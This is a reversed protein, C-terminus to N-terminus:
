IKLFDIFLKKAILTLYGIGIFLIFLIFMIAYLIDSAYTLATLNIFTNLFNIILIAIWLTIVISISTTIPAVLWYTKKFRWSFYRNYGFILSAVFFWQLNNLLFNSLASIFNNGLPMNIFKLIWVLIVIGIIGFVSKILPGIFGLPWFCQKKWEEKEKARHEIRRGFIEACKEM